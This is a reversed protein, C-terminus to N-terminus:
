ILLKRFIEVFNKARDLSTKAKSKKLDETMEYQFIARKTREYEFTEILTEAISLANEQEEEYEKILKLILDDKALVILTDSVVKHVLKHQIKYGKKYIYANAIYFMSYYSSVVVWLYSINENFLKNAVELSEISNQELKEFINPNFKSKKLLEENLYNNFNNKAQEIRTKDM